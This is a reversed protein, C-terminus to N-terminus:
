SEPLDDPVDEPGAWPVFEIETREQDKPVVAQYYDCLFWRPSDDKIWGLRKLADPIPKAGGVLNAYDVLRTRLSRLIIRVPEAVPKRPTLQARLLVFWLEKEKHYLTWHRYQSENQSPVRRRIVILRGPQEPM